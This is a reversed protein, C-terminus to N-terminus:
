QILEDARLLLSQPVTLGLAKATKLNLTLEFRTPQEIPLDGPKAGKLIRDIYSATMTLYQAPAPGFAMLGSAPLYRGFAVVALPLGHKQAFGAILERHAQILPEPPLLISESGAHRIAAFAAEFDGASRVEVVQLQLGLVTADARAQKVFAAAGDNGPNVFLATSRLRPSAEKLFQLLKSAADEAPYKSGTVNGGPKRYDAVIGQEVPNGVSVMVIPITKTAQMLARTPPLGNVLILDPAQAVIEAAMAPLLETKGASSKPALLQISRGDTWGLKELEPRLLVYFRELAAQDIPSLYAIRPVTAQALARRGGSCLLTASATMAIFSRRNPM